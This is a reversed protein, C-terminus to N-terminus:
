GLVFPFFLSSCFLLRSIVMLKGPKSFNAVPSHRPRPHHFRVPFSQVFEETVLRRLLSSQLPRVSFRQPGMSTRCRTLDDVNFVSSIGLNRPIDLEYASFGFRRLIKYPARCRPHPKKLTVLTCRMM